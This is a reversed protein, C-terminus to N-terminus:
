DCLTFIAHKVTQDDLFLSEEEQKKEPSDHTESSATSKSAEKEVRKKLDVLYPSILMIQGKSKFIKKQQKALQIFSNECAFHKSSLIHKEHEPFKERHKRSEEYNLVRWCEVCILDKNCKQKSSEFREKMKEWEPSDYKVLTSEM